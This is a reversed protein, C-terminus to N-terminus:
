FINCGGTNVAGPSVENGSGGTNASIKRKLSDQKYARHLVVVMQRGGQGGATKLLDGHGSEGKFM